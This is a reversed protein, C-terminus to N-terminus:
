EVSKVKDCTAYEGQKIRKFLWVRTEYDDLRDCDYILEPLPDDFAIEYGYAAHSLFETIVLLKEFHSNATTCDAQVAIAHLIEQIKNRLIDQQAQALLPKLIGQMVDDLIKYLPPIIDGYVYTNSSIEEFLRERMKADYVDDFDAIFRLLPSPLQIHCRNNLKALELQAAEFDDFFEQAQSLPSCLQIRFLRYQLEIIISQLLCEQKEQSPFTQLRWLLRQLDNM